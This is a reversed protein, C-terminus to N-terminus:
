CRDRDLHTHLCDTPVAESGAPAARVRGPLPVTGLPVRLSGGRTGVEADRDRSETTLNEASAQVTTLALLPGTALLPALTWLALTKTTPTM